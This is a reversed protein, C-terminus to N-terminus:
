NLMFLDTNRENQVMAQMYTMLSNHDNQLNDLIFWLALLVDLAVQESQKFQAM